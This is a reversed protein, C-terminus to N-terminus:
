SLIDKLPNFSSVVIKTKGSPMKPIEKAYEFKVEFEPDIKTLQSQVYTELVPNQSKVVLHFILLSKTRQEVQWQIVEQFPELISGFWNVRIGSPSLVVDNSRGKIDKLVMLSRGCACKEESLVGRDGLQYRIFPQAYNTLDTIVIEGEEELVSEGERLVEVIFSEDFIHLGAHEECELAISGFESTGYHEFVECQFVDEIFRRAQPFLIEAGVRVSQLPFDIDLEAAYKALDVVSSVYGELYKIEKKKLLEVYNQLIIESLATCQLTLCKTRQNLIKDYLQPIWGSPGLDGASTVLRAYPKGFPHGVWKRARIYQTKSNLQKNLDHYYKFPKGTTGSTTGESFGWRNGLAARPVNCPPDSLRIIEKTIVPLKKFDKFSKLDEPIHKQRRLRSYFPIGRCAYKYLQQLQKLQFTQHIQRPFYQSKQLRLSHLYFTYPSFLSM